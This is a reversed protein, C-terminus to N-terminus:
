LFLNPRSPQTCSTAMKMASQAALTAEEISMHNEKMLIGILQAHRSVQQHVLEAPMRQIKLQYREKRPKLGFNFEALKKKETQLKIDAMELEIVAKEQEQKQSLPASSDTWPLMAVALSEAVRTLQDWKETHQSLVQNEIAPT